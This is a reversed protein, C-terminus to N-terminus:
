NLRNFRHCSSGSASEVFVSGSERRAIEWLSVGHALHLGRHRLGMKRLQEVLDFAARRDDDETVAPRDGADSGIGLAAPLLRLLCHFIDSPEGLFSPLLEARDGYILKEGPTVLPM